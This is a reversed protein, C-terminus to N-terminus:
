VSRKVGIDSLYVEWGEQEQGDVTKKYKDVVVEINKRVKDSYVMKGEQYGEFRQDFSVTGYYRGDPGLRLKSVFSVNYWSVRVDQYRLLKLKNLYQRIKYIESGKGPQSVEVLRDEDLFLGCALGITRNAEDLATQKDAIIRVYRGLDDVKQLIKREFLNKEFPLDDDGEKVKVVKMEMAQTRLAPMDSAAARLAPLVPGIPGFVQHRGDKRVVAALKPKEADFRVGGRAEYYVKNMDEGTIHAVVSKGNRAIIIDAELDKADPNLFRKVAISDPAKSASDLLLFDGKRNFLALVKSREYSVPATQNAPIVTVAQHTVSEIQGPVRTNDALYVTAQGMARGGGLLCLAAWFLHLCVSKM